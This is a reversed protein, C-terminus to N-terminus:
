PRPALTGEFLVKKIGIDVFGVSEALQISAQNAASVLYLPVRGSDLVHQVVAAVVSRGLGQRRYPSKTHVYIEAFRDSQWNLGAAAIVDGKQNSRGNGTQRVIFRPLGDYSQSRAVLVNIIPQFRGRDMVLLNLLDEAQVEFLARLLPQYAEPAALIVSTGPHIARYILVAGTYPDPGFTSEDEPLRLTVVPRFLDMGTRALCIYANAMRAAEPATILQVKEDPHHFAYYGAQADAPDRENLLHRIALRSDALTM